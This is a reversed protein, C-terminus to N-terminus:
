SLGPILMTALGLYILLGTGDVITSIMPASVVAPDLGIRRLVLPLLAAVLTAWLVILALSVSVTMMIPWTMNPMTWARLLGAAAMTLAILSGARIEKWLVRGADRLTVGDTTIARILTTTIQTGVNGGTGILLPVFFSLAVVTELVDEFAQMVNSTYMATLFLILLWVVRKRWLTFPTAKLYPEELPISGGMMEADETAEERFIARITDSTIVGLLHQGDMVPIVDSDRTRVRDSVTEQDALPEVSWQRVRSAPVMHDTVPEEFAGLILAAESLWGLVIPGQESAKTVFVGEDLLAPDQRASEVADQITADASVALYDPSMRSAASEDPWALLGRILASHSFEMARLMKLKEGEDMLDIIRAADAANLTDLLGAAFPLPIKKLFDYGTHPTISELLEQASAPTLLNTLEQAHEEDLDAIQNDMLDHDVDNLWLAVARPTGAETVDELNHPIRSLPEAERRWNFLRKIM